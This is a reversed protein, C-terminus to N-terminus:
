PCPLKRELRRILDPLPEALYHLAGSAIMLNCGDGDQFRTTFSLATAQRQEAIRRGAVVVDELDMVQWRLDDPWDLCHRYYYYLNGINGGLDFVSHVHQTRSMLHYFAAYDSERPRDSLDAHVDINRPNSHGGGAYAGLARQAAELTPFCRRYGVLLSTCGPIARM